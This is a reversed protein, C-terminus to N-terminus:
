AISYTDGGNVGNAPSVTDGVQEDGADLLVIDSGLVGGSQVGWAGVDIVVAGGSEEVATRADVKIKYGTPVDSVVILNGKCCYIDGLGSDAAGHTVFSGFRTMNANTDPSADTQEAGVATLDTGTHQAQGVNTAYYARYVKSSDNGRVYLRVDSWADGPDDGGTFDFAPGYEYRNFNDRQRAGIGNDSVTWFTTANPEGVFVGQFQGFVMACVMIGKVFDAQGHLRSLCLGQTPNLSGAGITGDNRILTGDGANVEWNRLGNIETSIADPWGDFYIFGSTDQQLQGVGGGAGYPRTLGLGIKM